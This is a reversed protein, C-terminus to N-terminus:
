QAPAWEIRTRIADILEQVAWLEVPGVSGYDSIEKRTTGETLTVICTPADTWTASYGPKMEGLRSNDILYCLRGYTIPDVEGAFKGLNPLDRTAEFDARGTRYLTITYVPCAGYCPTRQLSISDYPLKARFQEVEEHSLGGRYLPQYRAPVWASESSELFGPTSYGKSDFYNSGYVHQYIGAIERDHEFKVRAIQESAQAQVRFCASIWGLAFSSLFLVSILIARKVIIPIKQV